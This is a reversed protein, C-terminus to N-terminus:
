KLQDAFVSNRPVALVREDHFDESILIDEAEESNKIVSTNYVGARKVVGDTSKFAVYVVNFQKQQPKSLNEELNRALILDNLMLVLNTEGENIAREVREQVESYKKIKALEVKAEKAPKEEHMVEKNEPM